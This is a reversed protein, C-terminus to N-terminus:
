LKWNMPLSDLWDSIPKVYTCLAAMAGALVLIACLAGILMLGLILKMIVM